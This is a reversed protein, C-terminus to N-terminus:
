AADAPRRGVMVAFRYDKFHCDVAGFGATRLWVLQDDLTASIDLKQREIAAAIDEESASAARAQAEWVQQYYAEQAPTPGLVQDANAFVGGPRLAEFVRRFLGQKDVHSLHHISLASVVADFPGCPLSQRYDLEACHLHPHGALRQRARALMAPAADVLWLEAAPFARAVAASLLGTGAGLELIRAPASTLAEILRAHLSDQCTVLARRARDYDAATREFAAPADRDPM